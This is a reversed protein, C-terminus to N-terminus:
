PPRLIAPSAGPGPLTPPSMAPWAGSQPAVRRQRQLALENRLQLRHATRRGRGGHLLLTLAQRAGHPQM